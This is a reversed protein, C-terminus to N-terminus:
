TLIVYPLMSLWYSLSTIIVFPKISLKVKACKMIMTQGNDGDFM